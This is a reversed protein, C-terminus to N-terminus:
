LSLYRGTAVLQIKRLRRMTRLVRRVQAGGVPPAVVRACAWGETVLDGPDSSTAARQGVAGVASKLSLQLGGIM